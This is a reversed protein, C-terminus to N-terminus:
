GEESAGGLCSTACDLLYECFISCTREDPALPKKRCVPCLKKTKM